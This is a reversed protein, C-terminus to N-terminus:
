SEVLALVRAPSGSGDKIKLPPAILVAGKPPLMDLNTLGALGCKNAGHMLNHCPFIPEQGSAQGSDTGVTEVGVGMVNREEALFIVTEPEWGPTHGGDEHMNLYEEANTKKSWDSRYLVWSGAEIEGHQAEWAKVFDVSMLFDPDSASEASADIVCAPGIFRDLPVTDTAHNEHDKGTVWHIPADFHTGTHEGCKFNNWYWAPGKENYRSIEEIHFPWSVGWGFETPLQLTPTSPELTATLDIIQIGGNSIGKVLELLATNSM